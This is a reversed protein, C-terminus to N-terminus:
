NVSPKKNNKRYQRASIGANQKFAQCFFSFSSFGCTESIKSIPMDSLALLNKAEAIRTNILYNMVTTGILEKFKRCFHYKSMHIHNCIDDITISEGYNANIYRIASAMYGDPSSIHEAMYKKLSTMLSFFCCIFSAEDNNKIDNEAKLFINEINDRENLPIYAYIVDNKTFCEFFSADGSAANLINNIHQSSIFIKSRDYNKRNEPMTYHMYNSRVFCLSGKKIPYINDRFVISGGDTYAQGIVITAMITGDSLECLFPFFSQKSSLQPLPNEYIINSNVVKM